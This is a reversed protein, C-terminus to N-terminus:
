DYDYERNTGKIMSRYIDRNVTESITIVAGNRTGFFAYFHHNGGVAAEKGSGFQVCIGRAAQAQTLECEPNMWDIPTRREAVLIMDNSDPGFESLKKGIGGEFALGKGVIVSYSTQSGDDTECAPCGFVDPRAEAFKKNHPSDWPEDLRIKEYLDQRNLYPLLLVRWSHLPRGNQDVSYAPPLTGHEKEYALMAITIEKVHTACRHSNGWSRFFGSEVAGMVEGVKRSRSARSFYDVATVEIDLEDDRVLKLVEDIRENKESACSDDWVADLTECYEQFVINWDLGSKMLWTTNKSQDFFEPEGAAKMILTAVRYKEHLKMVSTDQLDPISRIEKQYYDFDDPSITRQNFFAFGISDALEEFFAGAGRAGAYNQNCLHRGLRKCSVIDDIARRPQGKGLFYNARVRFGRAIPRLDHNFSNCWFFFPISKSDFEMEMEYNECAVLPCEFVDMRVAKAFLDLVPTNEDVWTSLMPLQDKTWPIRTSEDLLMEVDLDDYEKDVVDANPNRVQDIKRMLKVDYEPSKRYGEMVEAPDVYRLEPNM